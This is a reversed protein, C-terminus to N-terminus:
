PKMDRIQLSDVVTLQTNMVMNRLEEVRGEVM